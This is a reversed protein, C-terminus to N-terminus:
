KSFYGELSVSMDELNDQKTFDFPSEIGMINKIQEQSWILIDKTRKSINPKDGTDLGLVYVNTQTNSDLRHIRSVAQQLIYDRFPVDVLVMNDSMTLPVATSLSKYTAVLPNVTEKDKFDNIINLLDKNTDANIFRGNINKNKFVEKCRDIVKNFSTFVVTKKESLEMIELFNFSEIMDVHCDVRSGSVIVGLCEGQIKLNPYKYESRIDKWKKAFEKDVTFLYNYIKNLEYSNVYSIVGEELFRGGSSRVLKLKNHFSVYDKNNFYPLNEEYLILGKLYLAETDKFRDNYLKTQKDVFEKMRIAIADLTYYDGNKIKIKIDHFIPEKLGLESKQVKFSIIGLRNELIDVGRNNNQRYIKKFGDIVEQTFLRDICSFVPIAEQPSAKIPTGSLALIDQCNSERCFEILTKTRNSTIENFNHSEDIVILTDKYNLTLLRPLAKELYEYHIVLFENEFNLNDRSTSYTINKKKYNYVKEQIHKLWVQELANAPCIVIMKKKNLLEHLYFSTMTKGSGATAALLFGNLHYKLKNKKYLKLFQEQHVLPQLKFVNLFDIDLDNKSDLTISKFRTNEILKSKILSFSHLNKYSKRRKSDYQTAGTKAYQLIHECMYIFDPIYFSYLELQFRNIKKFMNLSIKDTGWFKNIDDLIEYTKINSILVTDNEEKVKIEGLFLEFM